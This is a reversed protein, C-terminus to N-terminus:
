AGTIKMLYCREFWWSKQEDSCQGMLTLIFLGFGPYGGAMAGMNMYLMENGAPVYM